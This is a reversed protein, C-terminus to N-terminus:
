RTIQVEMSSPERSRPVRLPAWRASNRACIAIKKGKKIGANNLFLRFQEINTALDAYTFADGEYDCLAKQKWHHRVTDELKKLYHKM